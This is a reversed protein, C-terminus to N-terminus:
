LRIRLSRGRAAVAHDSSSPVALWGSSDFVPGGSMGGETHCGLEVLHGRRHRGRGEGKADVYHKDVSGRVIFLNAHINAGETWKEVDEKDAAFGVCVLQEGLRPIRPFMQLVPANSAHASATTLLSAVGHLL